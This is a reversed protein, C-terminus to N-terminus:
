NKVCDLCCRYLYRMFHLRDYLVQVLANKSTGFVGMSCVGRREDICIRMRSIM